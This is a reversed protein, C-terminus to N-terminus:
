ATPALVVSAVAAFSAIGTVTVVGQLLSFELDAFNELSFFSPMGEQVNTYPAPSQFFLFDDGREFKEVQGGMSAADKGKGAMLPAAVRSSSRAISTQPTIVLASALPAAAAFLALLMRALMKSPTCM